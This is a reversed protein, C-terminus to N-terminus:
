LATLLTYGHEQARNVTVVGATVLHSNPVTNAALEALVVNMDQGTNTAISSAVGRAAAKCVAFHAGLKVLDQITSGFNPLEAGYDGSLFLNSTPPRKTKPDTLKPIENMTAAYKAWMADNFAFSISDHRFGVVVAIDQETLSYDSKNAYFLNFAYLLATAGGNVTSSDIFTRHKGPIADLWADQPHVAPQFVAAAREQADAFKSGALLVTVASALGAFASRRSPQLPNM